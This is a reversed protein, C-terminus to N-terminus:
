RVTEIDFRLDPLNGAMYPAWATVIRVIRRTGRTCAGLVLYAVLKGLRTGLLADFVPTGRPWVMMPWLPDVPEVLDAYLREVLELTEDNIVQTIFVYNLEYLAFDREYFAQTVESIQLGNADEARAINDLFVVGPGTYGIWTLGNWNEISFYRYLDGTDFDIGFVNARQRDRPFHRDRVVDLSLANEGLPKTGERHVSHSSM